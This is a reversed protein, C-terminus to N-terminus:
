PAPDASAPDGENRVPTGPLESSNKADYITRQKNGTSAAKTIFASMSRMVRRQGRMQESTIITRLALDRQAPSGNRAIEQLMHPPIICFIPRCTHM